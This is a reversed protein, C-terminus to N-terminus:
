RDMDEEPDEILDENNTEPKEIDKEPEEADLMGPDILWLKTMDKSQDQKKIGMDDKALETKIRGLSDKEYEPKVTQRYAKYIYRDLDDHAIDWISHEEDESLSASIINNQYKKLEMNVTTGNHSVTAFALVKNMGGADMLGNAPIIDIKLNGNQNGNFIYKGPEEQIFERGKVVPRRTDECTTDDGIIVVPRDEYSILVSADKGEESLLRINFGPDPKESRGALDILTHMMELRLKPSIHGGLDMNKDYNEIEISTSQEIAMELEEKEKERILEPSFPGNRIIDLCKALSFGKKYPRPAAVGDYTDNIGTLDYGKAAIDEVTYSKKIGRAIDGTCYYTDKDHADNYDKKMHHYYCAGECAEHIVDSSYRNRSHYEIGTYAHKNMEDMEEPTYKGEKYLVAPDVSLKGFDHGAGAMWSIICDRESKGLAKQMRYNANAVAISHAYTYDKMLKTGDKAATKVATSDMEKVLGLTNLIHSMDKTMGYKVAGAIIEPHIRIDRYGTYNKDAM